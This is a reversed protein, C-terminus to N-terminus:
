LFEHHAHTHLNRTYHFQWCQRTCAVAPVAAADTNVGRYSEYCDHNVAAQAGRAAAATRMALVTTAAPIAMLALVLIVRPAPELAAELVASAGDPWTCQSVRHRGRSHQLLPIRATPSGAGDTHLGEPSSDHEAKQVAACAHRDHSICLRAALIRLTQRGRRLFTANCPCTCTECRGYRTAQRAEYSTHCM